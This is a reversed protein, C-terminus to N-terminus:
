PLGAPARLETPAKSSACSTTPIGENPLGKQLVTIRSLLKLTLRALVKVELGHCRRCSEGTVRRWPVLADMAPARLVTPAKSSAGFATPMGESPLGQQLVTIRSLLLKLTCRALVVEELGHCQRCSEGTVRRWPVLADMAPARLVTPAKSSAGGGGSHGPM